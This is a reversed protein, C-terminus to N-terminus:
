NLSNNIRRESFGMHAEGRRESTEGVDGKFCNWHDDSRRHGDRTRGKFSCRRARGGGTGRKETKLVDSLSTVEEGM